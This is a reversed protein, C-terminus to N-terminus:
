KHPHSTLGLAAHILPALRLLLLARACLRGHTAGVPILAALPAVDGVAAVAAAAVAADFAAALPAEVAPTMGGACGNVTWVPVSDTDGDTGCVPNLKSCAARNGSVVSCGIAPADDDDGAEGEAPPAGGSKM